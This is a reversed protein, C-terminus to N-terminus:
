FILTQTYFIFQAIDGIKVLREIYLDYSVYCIVCLTGFNGLQQLFAFVAIWKKQKIGVEYLKENQVM